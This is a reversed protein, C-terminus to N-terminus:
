IENKKKKISVLVRIYFDYCYVLLLLVFFFLYSSPVPLGYRELVHSFLLLCARFSLPFQFPLWSAADLRNKMCELLFLFFIKGRSHLEIKKERTAKWSCHQLYITYFFLSWSKSHDQYSCITKRRAKWSCIRSKIHIVDVLGLAKLPNKYSWDESIDIAQPLHCFLVRAGCVHAGRVTPVM